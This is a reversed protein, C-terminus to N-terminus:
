CCVLVEHRNTKEKKKKKKKKQHTLTVIHFSLTASLCVKCLRIIFEKVSVILEFSNWSIGIDFDIYKKLSTLRM